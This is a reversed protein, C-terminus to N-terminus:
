AYIKNFIDILSNDIAYQLQMKQADESSYGNHMAYNFIDHLKSKNGNYSKINNYDDINYIYIYGEFQVLFITWTEIHVNKLKRVTSLVTSYINYDTFELKVRQNNDVCEEITFNYNHKICWNIIKAITM